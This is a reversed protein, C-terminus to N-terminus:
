KFYFMAQFVEMYLPISKLGSYFISSMGRCPPSQSDKTTLQVESDQTGTINLPQDNDGAGTTMQFFLSLLM